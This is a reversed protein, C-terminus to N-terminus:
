AGDKVDRIPVKKFLGQSIERRSLSEIIFTLL